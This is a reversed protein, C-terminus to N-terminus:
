GPGEPLSAVENPILQFAGTEPKGILRAVFRCPLSQGPLNTRNRALMKVTDPRYIPWSVSTSAAETLNRLDDRRSEVTLSDTEVSKAM